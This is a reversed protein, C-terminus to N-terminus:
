KKRSELLTSLIGLAGAEFECIKLVAVGLAELPHTVLKTLNMQSLRLPTWQLATHRPYKRAYPRVSKGYRYCQKMRKIIDFGGWGHIIYADIKAIKFRGAMKQPLDWDEGAELSEDYGGLQEFLRKEIFRVCLGPNGYPYSEIELAKAKGLFGKGDYLQPVVVARAGSECAMVCEGVVRPLLKMDADILFLYMGLAKKAGLNRQATMGVREAPIAKVRYEALIKSTDDTSQADVVVIEVEQYTQSRISEICDRLTRGSNRTPIVISVLPATM